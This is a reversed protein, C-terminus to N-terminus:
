GGRGEGGDGQQERAKLRVEEGAEWGWWVQAQGAQGLQAGRGMEGVGPSTCRQPHLAKPVPDGPLPCARTGHAGVTRLTSWRGSAATPRPANM